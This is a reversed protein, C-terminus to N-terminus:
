STAPGLEGDITVGSGGARGEKTVISISLSFGGGAGGSNPDAVRQTRNALMALTKVGDLKATASADPDHVMQYLVPISDELAVEAKVTIRRGANMDGSFKELAEKLMKRFAPSKKLLTWQEPSINYRERIAEADSLGAALEACITASLHKLELQADFEPITVETSM